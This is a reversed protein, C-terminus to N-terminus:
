PALGSNEVAGFPMDDVYLGFKSADVPAIAPSPLNLLRRESRSENATSARDVRTM